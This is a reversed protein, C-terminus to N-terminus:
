RDSNKLNSHWLGYRMVHRIRERQDYTFCSKEGVYDMVSTSQKLGLNGECAVKTDFDYSYTDPCLDDCFTFPHFLSFTHGVEHVITSSTISRFDVYCSPFKRNLSPELNTGVPYLEAGLLPNTDYVPPSSNAFSERNQEPLIWINLYANPDWITAIGFHGVENPGLTKDGVLDPCDPDNPFEFCGRDFETINHRYIGPETMMTGDPHQTALRFRLGTDVANPDKSNAENSFIKNLVNLGSQIVDASINPTSPNSTVNSIEQGFHGVHFVVPISILPYDKIERAEIEVINSMQGEYEAQLKHNGAEDIVFSFQSLEVVEGNAYITYDSAKQVLNDDTYLQINAKSIGNAILLETSTVLKLEKRIESTTDKTCQFLFLTFLIPLFKYNRFITKIQISFFNSIV